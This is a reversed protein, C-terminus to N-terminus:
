LGIDRIEIFSLDNNKLTLQSLYVNQIPEDKIIYEIIINITNYIKEIQVELSLIEIRPEYKEILNMLSENLIDAEVMGINDFLLTIARNGIYPKGPISGEVSLFLNKISNNIAENGTLTIYKDTYKEKIIDKYM